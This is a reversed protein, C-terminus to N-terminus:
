LDKRGGARVGAAALACTAAAWIRVEPTVDPQGEGYVEIQRAIVALRQPLDLEAPEVAPFPLSEIADARVLSFSCSTRPGAADLSCPGGWHLVNANWALAQGASLPEPRVAGPDNETSGLADPYSPDAELPVFHMCSRDPSVDSLAVWTNVLEPRDRDLLRRWGRHAPWGARGRPIEWAWVDEVLLYRAGLMAEVQTRVAAGIAWIEDFAYVLVAPLGAARLAAIARTARAALEASTVAGLRVVGEGRSWPPPLVPGPPAGAATTGTISLGAGLELLMARPDSSRLTDIPDEM